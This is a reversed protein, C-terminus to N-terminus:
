APARRRRTTWRRDATSTGAPSSAARAGTRTSPTGRAAENTCTAAVRERGAQVLDVVRDEIALAVEVHGVAARAALLHRDRDEAHARVARALRERRADDVGRRHRDIRLALQVHRAPEFPRHVADVPRCREFRRSRDRRPTRGRTRTRRCATQRRDIPCSRGPRGAAPLGARKRRERRADRREVERDPGVLRDVHRRRREGGVVRHVPHDRRSTDATAAENPRGCPRANSAGPARCTTSASAPALPSYRITGPCGGSSM